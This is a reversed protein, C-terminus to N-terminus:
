LNAPDSPDDPGEGLWPVAAVTKKPPGAIRKEENEKWRRELEAESPWNFWDRNLTHLCEFPAEARPGPLKERLEKLEQVLKEYTCHHMGKPRGRAVQSELADRREHAAVKSGISQRRYPLNSCKKCHWRWTFVIHKCSRECRPCLFLSFPRPDTYNTAQRLSVLTLQYESARALSSVFDISVVRGMSLKFDAYAFPADDERWSWVCRNNGRGLEDALEGASITPFGELFAAQERDCGYLVLPLPNGYQDPDIRLL